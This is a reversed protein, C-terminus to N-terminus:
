RLAEAEDDPIVYFPVVLNRRDYDDRIRYAIDIWLTSAAVDPTVVVELVEVRPEWRTLSRQVEYAVLGATNADAPAFVHDALPCGFEPRMPREGPTTSLILYMAQEVEAAGTTMAFAGAPDVAVPWRWGAGLFGGAAPGTPQVTM